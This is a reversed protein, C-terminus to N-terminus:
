VRNFIYREASKNLQPARVFLALGIQDSFDAAYTCGHEVKLHM